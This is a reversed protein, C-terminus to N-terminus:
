RDHLEARDPLTETDLRFGRQIQTVATTSARQYTSDSDVLRSIEDAVLRTISTGRRAALVRAKALTEDDIQVTLNRKM